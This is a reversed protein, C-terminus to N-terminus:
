PVLGRHSSEDRQNAGSRPIGLQQRELRRVRQARGVHHQHVLQHIAATERVQARVRPDDLDAFAAAALGRGLGEDLLKENEVGPLSPVHHPQLASVGEDEAAAAFLDFRQARLSDLDLDDGADGCAGRHRRRQANRHGVAFEGAADGEHGPVRLISRFGIPLCQSM